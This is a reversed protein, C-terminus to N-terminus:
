PRGQRARAKARAAAVYAASQGKPISLTRWAEGRVARAIVIIQGIHVAYHALQKLIARVVTHPEDAITVVRGLDDDTLPDIAAFLTRWGEDWDEMLAARSRGSPEFEGDRDRWPKEGDSTLFDTWRSRMNGALHQVLVAITNVGPALARDFDADALEAFVKEGTRKLSGLENRIADMTTTM